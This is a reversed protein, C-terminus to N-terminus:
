KKTTPPRPAATPPEPIRPAKSVPPMRKPEFSRRHQLLNVFESKQERQMMEQGLQLTASATSKAAGFNAKSAVEMAGGAMGVLADVGVGVGGLAASMGTTVAMHNRKQANIDSKVQAMQSSLYPRAGQAKDDVNKQYANSALGYATAATAGALLGTGKAALKTAGGIAPNAIAVATGVHNVVGAATKTYKAGKAITEYRAAVKNDAKFERKFPRLSEAEQTLTDRDTKSLNTAIKAKTDLLAGTVANKSMKDYIYAREEHLRFRSSKHKDTNAGQAIHASNLRQMMQPDLKGVAPRPSNGMAGGGTSNSQPRPANAVKTSPTPASNSRPKNNM